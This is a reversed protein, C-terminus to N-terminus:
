RWLDSYDDEEMPMGYNYVQSYDGVGGLEIFYSTMEDNHISYDTQVTEMDIWEFDLCHDPSTSCSEPQEVDCFRYDDPCGESHDYAELCSNQSMIEAELSQIVARLREDDGDEVQSDELLSMILSDDINSFEVDDLDDCSRGWFCTETQIAKAM